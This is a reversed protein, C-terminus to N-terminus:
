NRHKTGQLTRQTHRLLPGKWLSKSHQWNGSSREMPAELIGLEPLFGGAVSHYFEWSPLQTSHDKGPELPGQQSDRYCLRARPMADQM